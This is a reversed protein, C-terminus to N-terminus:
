TCQSCHKVIMLHLLKNHHIHVLRNDCSQLKKEGVDNALQTVNGLNMLQPKAMQRFHQCVVGLCSGFVSIINSIWNKRLEDGLSLSHVVHVVVFISEKMKM